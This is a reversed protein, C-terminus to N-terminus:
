LIRDPRIAQQPTAGVSRASCVCAAINDANDETCGLASAIAATNAGGNNAGIASTFSDEKIFVVM